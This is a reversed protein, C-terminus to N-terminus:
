PYGPDTDFATGRNWSRRLPFLLSVATNRRRQFTVLMFDLGGKVMWRMASSM